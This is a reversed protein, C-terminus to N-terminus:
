PADVTTPTFPVRRGDRTSSSAARKWPQWTVRSARLTTPPIRCVLSAARAAAAQPSLMGRWCQRLASFVDFNLRAPDYGGRGPRRARLALVYHWFTIGSTIGSRGPPQKRTLHVDFSQAYERLHFRSTSRLSSKRLVDRGRVRM